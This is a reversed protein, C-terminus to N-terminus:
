DPKDQGGSLPQIGASVCLAEGADHLNNMEGEVHARAAVYSDLSAQDCGAEVAAQEIDEIIGKYLREAAWLKRQLRHAKQTLNSM